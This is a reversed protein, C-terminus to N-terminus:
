FRSARLVQESFLLYQFAFHSAAIVLLAFSGLLVM